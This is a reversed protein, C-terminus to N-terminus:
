GHRGRSWRTITTRLRPIAAAAVPAPLWVAIARYALVAPLALAVPVGFAVLVGAIGGSVSGPIPLTNAVQGVFYALVVVPLAPASGFANLMSFLVAADFAWYGIAGLLRRDATRVLAIADRVADGVLLGGHRLRAVISGRTAPAAARDSVSSGRARAFGVAAAIGLAAAAAPVASLAEPGSTRVLGLALTGGAVVIAALFVSYLLVLFALLTRTAAGATLGARRLAWLALALGGVGATPLLRTAAAGALTIQASERTGVRPTARGAVLALLVVYGALSATEFIVAAIAWAPSVDLGRVLADAFTRVHGGLVFMAAVAIAAIAAPVAIRRLAGSVDISPLALEPVALDTATQEPALM